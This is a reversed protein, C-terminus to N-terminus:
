VHARGIEGFGKVLQDPSSSQLLAYLYATTATEYGSLEPFRHLHQRIKAVEGTM